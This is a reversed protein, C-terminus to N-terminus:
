VRLAGRVADRAARAPQRRRLTEPDVVSCCAPTRSRRPRRVPRAYEGTWRTGASRTSRSTAGARRRKSRCRGPRRRRHLGQPRTRDEVRPPAAVVDIGRRDQLRPLERRGARRPRSTALLAAARDPPSASSRSTSTRRRRRGAAPRAGLRRRRARSRRGGARGRRHRSRARATSAPDDDVSPVAPRPCFPCYAPAEAGALIM